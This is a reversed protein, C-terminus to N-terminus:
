TEAVLTIPFTVDAEYASVEDKAVVALAAVDM